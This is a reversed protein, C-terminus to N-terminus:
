ENELASELTLSQFHAALDVLDFVSQIKLYRSVRDREWGEKQAEGKRAKVFKTSPQKM